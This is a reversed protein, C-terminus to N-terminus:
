PVVQGFLSARIGGFGLLWVWEPQTLLMEAYADTRNLPKTAGFLTM